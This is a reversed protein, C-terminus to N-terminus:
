RVVTVVAAGVAIGAAAGLEKMSPARVVEVGCESCLDSIQSTVRSEADEAIFVRVAKGDRVAKKSQKIGVVKAATNLESLM